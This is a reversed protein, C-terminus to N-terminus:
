RRRRRRSPARRGTLVGFAHDLQVFILWAGFLGTAPGITWPAPPWPLHMALVLRVALFVCVGALLAFMVLRRRARRQGLTLPVRTERRPKVPQTEHKPPRVPRVENHTPRLKDIWFAEARRLADADAQEGEGTSRVIELCRYGAAGPLIRAKWPDKAVSRASAHGNRGHVRQHITQTTKGVYPHPGDAPNGTILEYVFGIVARGAGSIIEDAVQWAPRRGATSPSM